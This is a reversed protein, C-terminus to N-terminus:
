NERIVVSGDADDVLVSEGPALTRSVGDLEVVAARRSNNKVVTPQEDCVELQAKLDQAYRETRALAASLDAVERELKDVQDHLEIRQAVCDKMAAAFEDKHTAERIARATQVAAEAQWQKAIKANANARTREARM